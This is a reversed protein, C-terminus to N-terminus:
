QGEVKVKEFFAAFKQPWSSAASPQPEKNWCGGAEVKESYVGFVAAQYFSSSTLTRQQWM